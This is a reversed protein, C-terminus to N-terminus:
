YMRFLNAALALIAIAQLLMSTNVVRDKRILIYTVIIFLLFLPATIYRSLWLPERSVIPIYIPLVTLAAGLFTGITGIAVVTRNYIKLYREVHGPAMGYLWLLGAVAILSYAVLNLFFAAIENM